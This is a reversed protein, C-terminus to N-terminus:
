LRLLANFSRGKSVGELRMESQAQRLMKYEDLKGKIGTRELCRGAVPGKVM